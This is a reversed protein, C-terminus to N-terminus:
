ERHVHVHVTSEVKVDVAKVFLYTENKLLYIQYVM